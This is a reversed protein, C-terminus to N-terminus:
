MPLSIIINYICVNVVSDMEQLRMRVVNVVYDMEQLRLQWVVNIVHDMGQLRWPNVNVILQSRDDENSRGDKDQVTTPEPVNFGVRLGARKDSIQLLIVILLLLWYM